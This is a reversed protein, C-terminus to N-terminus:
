AREERVLRRSLGPAQWFVILAALTLIATSSRLTVPLHTLFAAPWNPAAEKPMANVAEALWGPLSLMALVVATGRLGIEAWQKDTPWIM